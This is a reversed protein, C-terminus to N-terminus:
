KKVFPLNIKWGGTPVFTSAVNLTVPSTPLSSNSAVEFFYVTGITASIPGVQSQLGQGAFNDNCGQSALAGRSDIWIALVTDYGSTFTNVTLAGDLPATFRYWVSNYRQTNSACSLAPDTGATTAGEIRQSHTCVVGSIYFANNLDDNTPVFNATVSKTITMTVNCTTGVTSDCGSWSAFNYDANANPTVTVATGTTYRSGCNTASPNVNGGNTPSANATLSYCTVSGAVTITDRWSSSCNGVTNCGRIDITHTGSSLAPTTVTYGETYQNFAGDTPTGNLWAGSDVSYQVGTIVNISNIAHTPSPYPIDTATGSYRAPQGATGGSTRSATLQVSTDVM